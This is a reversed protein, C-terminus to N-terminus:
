RKKLSHLTLTDYLAYIIAITIIASRNNILFNYVDLSTSHLILSSGLPGLLFATALLTFALASILRQWKGHSVPGSFLLLVPPVLVLVAAVVSALPPAYLEVGAGEVWPTVTDTWTTSLLYGACLALGLVGFRRRTLYAFVFLIAVIVILVIVLNM